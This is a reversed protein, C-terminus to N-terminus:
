SWVVPVLSLVLLGAMTWNFARLRAPSTLVRRMEQGLAAWLSNCPLGVAFFTLAVALVGWASDGAYLTMAGLAMAWAKPNVWQFAAAQLVTLPKGGGTGEKPTATAIKWALWLLYLVSAIELATELTPYARFVGALGLGLVLAMFTLGGTIGIMHPVTRRLGFNAGSALLMMNNPGPTITSAVAFGLLPLILTPDM